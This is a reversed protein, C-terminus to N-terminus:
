GAVKVGEQGLSSEMPERQTPSSADKEEKLAVNPVSHDIPVQLSEAPGTQDQASAGKEEKLALIPVYYEIPVKQYAPRSWDVYNVGGMRAHGPTYVPKTEQDEDCFYTYDQFDRPMKPWKAPNTAESSHNISRTTRREKVWMDLHRRITSIDLGPELTAKLPWEVMEEIPGVEHRWFAMGNRFSKDSTLLEYITFIVGDVDPPGWSDQNVTVDGIQMCNNFDFLLLRQTQPDILFNRAAIDRHMIGYKLNIDDVLEMMQILWSLRFHTFSYNEELTGGPIFKTTYGILWHDKDDVVFKEFPVVSPHGRLARMAHADNWMMELQSQHVAIKFVALHDPDNGHIYSVIDAIWYMRREERLESRKVIDVRVDEPQDDFRPYHCMRGHDDSDNSSFSLWEGDDSIEVLVYEPLLDDACEDLLASASREDPIAEESGRIAIHRRQDLLWFMFIGYDCGVNGGGLFQGKPHSPNHM